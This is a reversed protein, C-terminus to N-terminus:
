SAYALTKYRRHGVKDAIISGESVAARGEEADVWGVLMTGSISDHVSEAPVFYFGALKSVLETLKIRM